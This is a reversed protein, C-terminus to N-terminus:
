YSYVTDARMRVHIVIPKFICAVRVMVKETQGDRQRDTQRHRHTERERGGERVRERKQKNTKGLVGNHPM